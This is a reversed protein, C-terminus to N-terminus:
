YKAEFDICFKADMKVYKSFGIILRMMLCFAIIAYAGSSIFVRSNFEGTLLYQKILKLKGQTINYSM